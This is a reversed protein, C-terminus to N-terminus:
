TTTWPAFSLSTPRPPTTPLPLLLLLPRGPVAVEGARPSPPGQAPGLLPRWAGRPWAVVIPHLMHHQVGGQRGPRWQQLVVPGCESVPPCPHTGWGVQRLGRNRSHAARKRNGVGEFISWGRRGSRRRDRMPGEAETAARGGAPGGPSLGAGPLSLSSPNAAGPATGPRAAASESPPRSASSAARAARRATRRLMASRAAHLALSAPM